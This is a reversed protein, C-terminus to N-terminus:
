QFIALAEEAPLLGLESHGDIRVIAPGEFRQRALGSVIRAVAVEGHGIRQDGRTGSRHDCLYVCALDDLNRALRDGVPFEHGLLMEGVDAALKLRDPRGLWQQLREFQAVTAIADGSRPRLALTIARQEATDLLEDVRRAIRDLLQETAPSSPDTAGPGSAFTVLRNGLIESANIWDRVWQQAAQAERDDATSLSPGRPRRPDHMYLGDSDLVLAISTAQAADAVRRLQEEFQRERPDLSGARPRVAVCRYGLDAMLGIAESQRHLLLGGVHFGPIM